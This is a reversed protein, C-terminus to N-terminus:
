LLCYGIFSIVIVRVKVRVRVRVRVNVKVKVKIKVIFMNSSSHSVIILRVSKHLLADNRPVEDDKVDYHPQEGYEM